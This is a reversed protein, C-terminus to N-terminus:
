NRYVFSFQNKKVPPLAISYTRSVGSKTLNNNFVVEIITGFKIMKLDISQWPSGYSLYLYSFLACINSLFCVFLIVFIFFHAILDCM